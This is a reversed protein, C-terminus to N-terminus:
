FSRKLTEQRWYGHTMAEDFLEKSKESATPLFTLLYYVQSDGESVSLQLDSETDLDVEDLM